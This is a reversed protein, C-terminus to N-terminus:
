FNLKTGIYIYDVDDDDSGGTFLLGNWRTYSGDTLGDGTFLHCWGAEFRLDESYQYRLFLNLEVGLDGGNQDTWFTLVPFEPRDFEDVVGFYNAVLIAMLKETPSAMTGVKIVYANSLDNFVDVAGSNIQNSFLRNFSVSAEPRDFPNLWEWFGLDRNDEGGYYSGALFIRPHCKYDFSYGIEATAGFTSFDADDDGYVFPKFTAGVADANGFQYAVEVNYDFGSVKGAARLGLTHLNTVGYEDLNWLEEWLNNGPTDQRSIADRVYMWYADIMCSECAQYSAYIGYFDVDGDEEIPSRDALKSWWGDITLKDATYTLRVADFSLGAFFFEFDRAGVLWQNGFAMEQRGIRLRVPQGFMENAEVYAQYVEVDNVSAARGDAGTMWNSRFDEGWWDYSDLSIVAKVNDSFDAKFNLITREEVFKLNGGEDDWDFISVAFPNFPGGMPRGLTALPGHRLAAPTSTFTNSIYNGRIWVSGGIEVNQLEAYVPVIAGFMMCVALLAFFRRM